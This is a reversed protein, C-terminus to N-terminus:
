NNLKNRIENIIIEKPIQGNKSKRYFWSNRPSPNMCNVPEDVGVLINKTLPDATLQNLIKERLKSTKKAKGFAVWIWKIQNEKKEIEEKVEKLIEKERNEFDKESFNKYFEKSNPERKESINVIYIYGQPQFDYAKNVCTYVNNQTRDCDINKYVQWNPADDSIKKDHPLCEGPNLMLVIGIGKDKGAENLIIKTKRRRIIKDVYKFEADIKCYEVKVM